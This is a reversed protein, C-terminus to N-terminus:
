HPLFPFTASLEVTHSKDDDHAVKTKYKRDKESTEEALLRLNENLDCM